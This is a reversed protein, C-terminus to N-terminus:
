LPAIGEMEMFSEEELADESDNESDESETDEDDEELNIIFEDTMEDIIFDNKKYDEEIERVKICLASWEPEGMSAVKEQITSQIENLNFSLNKQAVHGKIAAWAMEIPNLEPHYPPLRLVRHNHAELLNNIVYKKHKEKHTCILKYLEPKLMSPSHEIHKEHLWALMDAKRTSSTPAPEELKNHYSANDVVVVSNEPLNPILQTKLWKEYNQFNMNDHYDGSKSGAKFILLANPVFGTEGGAHVIVLRQGKSIPKKLGENSDDSWAKSVSHSSDVYSEDTYIIPRGEQRYKTIKKIYDIRKLRIDWKEILLKRNDQTKRWKFGMNKLITRLSTNSGKFDIDRELKEKIKKITPLEKETKHFNHVCRKVVSRDFADLGTVRAVGRRKKGPTRFVPAMSGGPSDPNRTTASIRKITSISVGTAAATRQLVMKLNFQLGGDAEKRMFNMVHFVMKRTQRRLVNFRGRPMNISLSFCSTDPFVGCFRLFLSDFCRFLCRVVTLSKATVNYWFWENLLIAM